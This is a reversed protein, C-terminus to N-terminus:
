GVSQCSSCQSMRVRRKKLGVQEREPKQDALEDDARRGVRFQQGPSVVEPQVAVQETNQDLSAIARRFHDAPQKRHGHRRGPEQLQSVVTTLYHPHQYTGKIRDCLIYLWNDMVNFIIKYKRVMGM